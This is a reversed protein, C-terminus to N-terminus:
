STHRFIQQKKHQLIVSCLTCLHYFKPYENKCIGLIYYKCPTFRMDWISGWTELIDLDKHLKYHDQHTHIQTYVLVDEAFPCMQCKNNNAKDNLYTLFLIPGLCTGQPVGSAVEVSDSRKSEVLVSLTRHQLM